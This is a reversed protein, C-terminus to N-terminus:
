IEPCFRYHPSEKRKRFWNIDFVEDLNKSMSKEFFYQTNIWAIGRFMNFVSDINSKTNAIYFMSFENSWSIGNLDKTLAILVKDALFQFGIQKKNNIFLHKLTISKKHQM